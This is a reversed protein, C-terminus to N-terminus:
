DAERECTKAGECHFSNSRRHSAMSSGLVIHHRFIELGVPACNNVQHLSTREMDYKCQSTCSSRRELNRQMEQYCCAEHTRCKWMLNNETSQIYNTSIYVHKTPFSSVSATLARILFLYQWHSLRSLSQILHRRIRLKSRWISLFYALFLGDNTLAFIARNEGPQRNYSSGYRQVFSHFYYPLWALLIWTENQQTRIRSLGKKNGSRTKRRENEPVLRPITERKAGYFFFRFELTTWLSLNLSNTSASVDLEAGRLRRLVIIVRLLLSYTMLLPNFLSAM